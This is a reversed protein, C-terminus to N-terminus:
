ALLLRNARAVFEASPLEHYIGSQAGAGTVGRLYIYVAGGFHTEFDYDPLRMKLLRDLALTYLHYQLIYASRAMSERMQEQGYDAPRHGLYNSKWDLIYYRGEHVFVMDIFGQLMGRSRRFSLNDLIGYFDRCSYEELLGDFLAKITDPALQSLPLFFEMECQWSGARLCSLSFDPNDRIISAAAVDAVMGSVAPLWCEQFGNAKLVAGTCRSIHDSNLSCFDLQEFIEHLCTGAKAGRPFDFISVGGALQEPLRNEETVTSAALNDRDHPQFNHGAGSLIASFSSVRWDDRPPHSLTRCALPEQSGIDASYMGGAAELPMSQVSIGYSGDDALEGAHALIEHDALAAFAKNEKKVKDRHLLNFLPSDIAGNICGWVFYCRFEARTLAVYLLRAAEADREKGALKRNAEDGALDLVLKGDPDHFLVRDSRASPSDWAFPVFVLPYQLGKSTHITSIIVANDDTELRLLAADDSYNGSIRRELWNISDPLNTGREHEAQHLLECCHLINTLCREGGTRSLIRSRVGCIGLLRSIVAVVGGVAAAHLDHFRLLWAEWEPDEGSSDVFAAVQNATLGIIGTLLAERLLRERGPDAVARLIRLLELAETSKFITSGGQQVSPIGRERLAQQIRDAQKHAKVLVAIDGPNLARPQGGVSLEFRGSELLGAIEGTVAHVIRDIAAPKSEAGSQDDRPYIWAHLPQSDPFGNRLLSDAASRGSTVPIFPIDDCLFPDPHRSFLRNVATVLAPSSRFNTGLTHRKDDDLNSGASLYAFVDAGRFSYIAQKPDGILFLPYGQAAGIRRFINWQLPDTDQFEDILAARYRERLQSALATGTDAELALHLDLLLDDFCRKNLASKRLKLERELWEKLDLRCAVLRDRYAEKLAETVEFMQQCVVFFTHDPVHRTSKTVKSAIRDASFFELKSCPQNSTAGQVWSHITGAAAAVQKPSYSGQHLGASELQELILSRGNKWTECLTAFLRDREAILPALEQEHREPVIKLDQNQYHGTFPLALKEPTYKGAVLHEVFEDPENLIRTRWFDDCVQQVIASQDTVMESEFLSGSEFANELLARQCFGHITFIAADDFSYLARTLLLRAREPNQPRDRSLLQELADTSAPRGSAYFELTLGIRRRIRDRLEATAAKTYTVVLIQEPRLEKELLLLIYLAAITWTKGTGASAEILNLGSIDITKLDLPKM